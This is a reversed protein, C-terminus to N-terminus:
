TTERAIVAAHAKKGSARKKKGKDIVFELAPIIFLTLSTSSIIGGIMVIGMTTRLEAGSAGIGMAMPLMGLIIAINSMLVPKLKATCADVLAKGTDVGNNRLQNYYDLILIANNVVIGVLMIVGIMGVMNFVSGTGLALFVVGIISLPVTSIIFLPQTLSELTAALV